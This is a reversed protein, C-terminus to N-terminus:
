AARAYAGLAGAMADAALLEVPPLDSHDGSALRANLEVLAQPLQGLRLADTAAALLRGDRAWVQLAERWRTLLTSLRVTGTITM